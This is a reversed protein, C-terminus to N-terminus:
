YSYKDDPDTEEEKRGVYKKPMEEKPKDKEFLAFSVYNGIGVSDILNKLEETVKIAVCENGKESTYLRGFTWWKKTDKRQARLQKEVGM